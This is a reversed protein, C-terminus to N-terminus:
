EAHPMVRIYPQFDRGKITATGKLPGAFTTIDDDARLRQVMTTPRILNYRTKEKWSTIVADHEAATFGVNVWALFEFEAM